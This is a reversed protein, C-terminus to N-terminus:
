DGTRVCSRWAWSRTQVQVLPGNGSLFVAPTGLHQSHAIQLGLITKGSGPVGTVLVLTKTRLARAAQIVDEIFAVAEPIQSIRRTQDESPTPAQLAVAGGAGAGAAALVACGGM